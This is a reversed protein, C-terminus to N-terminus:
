RACTPEQATCIRAGRPRTRSLPLRQSQKGGDRTHAHQSRRSRRCSCHQLAPSRVPARQRPPRARAAPGPGAASRMRMASSLRTFWFTSSFTSCRTSGSACGLTTLLPQSASCARPPGAGPARVRGGARAGRRQQLAAAGPQSPTQLQARLGRMRAPTQLPFPNQPSAPFALSPLTALVATAHRAALASLRAPGQAHLLQVRGRVIQHEHVNV